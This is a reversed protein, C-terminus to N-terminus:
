KKSSDYFNPNIVKFKSISASFTEVRNETKTVEGYRDLYDVTYSVILELKLTTTFDYSKTDSFSTEMINLNDGIKSVGQNYIIEGLLNSNSDKVKLEKVLINKYQKGSGLFNFLSISIKFKNEEHANLLFPSDYVAKADFIMDSNKFQLSKTEEIVKDNEALVCEKSFDDCQYSLYDGYNGQCGFEKNSKEVDTPCNCFTEGDEKIKNGCKDKPIEKSVVCVKLEKDYTYTKYVTNSGTCDPESCSSFIFASILIGLILFISKSKM